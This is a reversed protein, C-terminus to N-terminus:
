KAIGIAEDAMDLLEKYEADVKKAEDDRGRRYAKLVLEVLLKRIM